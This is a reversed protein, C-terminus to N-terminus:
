SFIGAPPELAIAMSAEPPINLVHVLRPRAPILGRLANGVWFGRVQPLDEQGILVEERAGEASTRRASVGPLLGCSCRLRACGRPGPRLVFLNIITGECIEGHENQFIESEDLGDPLAARPTM